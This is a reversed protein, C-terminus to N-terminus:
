LQQNWSSISYIENYNEYKINWFSLCFYTIKKRTRSTLMQNWHIAFHWANSAIRTVSYILIHIHYDSSAFHCMFDFRPEFDCCSFRNLISRSCMISLLNLALLFTTNFFSLVNSCLRLCILWHLKFLENELMWM